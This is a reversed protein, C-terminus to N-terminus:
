LRDAVPLTSGCAPPAGPGVTVAVTGFPADDGVAVPGLAPAVTPSTPAELTGDARTTYTRSGVPLADDDPGDALAAGEGDADGALGLAERVTVGVGLGDPAEDDGGAGAATATATTTLV